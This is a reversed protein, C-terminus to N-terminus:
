HQLAWIIKMKYWTIKHLQMHCLLFNNTLESREYAYFKKRLIPYWHINLAVPPLLELTIWCVRFDARGTLKCMGNSITGM